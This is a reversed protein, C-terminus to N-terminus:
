EMNPDTYPIDPLSDCLVLMDKKVRKWCFLFESLITKKVYEYGEDEDVEDDPKYKKLSTLIASMFIDEMTNGNEIARDPNRVMGKFEDFHKAVIERITM